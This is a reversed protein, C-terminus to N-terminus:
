PTCSQLQDPESTEHGHEAIICAFWFCLKSLGLISTVLRESTGRTSQITIMITDVSDWNTKIDHATLDTMCYLRTKCGGRNTWPRKVDYIRGIKYLQSSLLLDLKWSVPQCFRGPLSGLVKHPCSTFCSTWGLLQLDLKSTTRKTARISTWGACPFDNLAHKSLKKISM